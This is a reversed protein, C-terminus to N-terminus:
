VKSWHTGFHDLHFGLPGRSHRYHSSSIDLTCHQDNFIQNETKLPLCVIAWLLGKFCHNGVQAGGGLPARCQQLPLM